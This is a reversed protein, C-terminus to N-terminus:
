SIQSKGLQYACNIAFEELTDGLLGLKQLHTGNLTFGGYFSLSKLSNKRKTILHDVAEPSMFIFRNKVSNGYKLCDELSPDNTASVM